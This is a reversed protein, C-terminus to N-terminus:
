HQGHVVNRLATNFAIFPSILADLFLVGFILYDPRTWPGFEDIKTMTYTGWMLTGLAFLLDWTFAAPGVDVSRVFELALTIIMLALIAGGTPTNFDIVEQKGLRISNWWGCLILAWPFWSIVKIM